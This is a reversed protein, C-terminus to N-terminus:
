FTTVDCRCEFKSISPLWAVCVPVLILGISLGDEPWTFILGVSLGDEPRAFILGISLGDELRTFILGISLGDEPRTFILGISLDDEPWAHHSVGTIGASQSASAPPDGSTLLKLGDQGVHHFGTEVLCLFILWAHHRAGTTGAVRSFLAPSDSLGLLHLKCHPSITGSCQLRSSLVLND